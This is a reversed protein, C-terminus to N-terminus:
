QKALKLFLNSNQLSVRHHPSIFRIPRNKRTPEGPSNEGCHIRERSPRVKHCRDRFISCNNLLYTISKM